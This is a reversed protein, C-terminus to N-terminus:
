EADLILSLEDADSAPSFFGIGWFILYNGAMGLDLLDLVWFFDRFSIFVTLDVVLSALSLFFQVASLELMLLVVVFFQSGLFQCRFLDFFVQVGHGNLESVKRLAPSALNPHFLLFRGWM